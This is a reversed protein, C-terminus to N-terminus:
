LPAGTGRGIEWALALGLMSITVMGAVSGLGFLAIYALGHVLDVILPRRWARVPHHEAHEPCPRWAQITTCCRPAPEWVRVRRAHPQRRGGSLSRVM